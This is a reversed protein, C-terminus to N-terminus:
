CKEPTRPWLPIGGIWEGVSILIWHHGRVYHRGIFCDRSARSRRPLGDEVVEMPIVDTIQALREGITQVRAPCVWNRVSEIQCNTRTVFAEPDTGKIKVEKQAKDIVYTYSGDARCKPLGLFTGHAPVCRVPHVDLEGFLWSVPDYVFLLHLGGVMLAIGIVWGLTNHIITLSSIERMQQKVSIRPM